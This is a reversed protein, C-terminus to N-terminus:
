CLAFQVGVVILWAAFLHGTVIGKIRLSAAGYSCGRLVSVLTYVGYFIILVGLGIALGAFIWMPWGSADAAWCGSLPPFALRM